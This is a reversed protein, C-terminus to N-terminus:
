VENNSLVVNDIDLFTKTVVYVGGLLISNKQFTSPVITILKSMRNNMSNKIKGIVNPLFDTIASNLIIINPNFTNLINNIAISMFDIFSSIVKNADLDGYLYDSALVDINKVEYVKLNSYDELLSTETVYQDLCGRNGCPCLNGGPVVISHGFEGAFGYRGTYLKTNILIGMGIGTYININVM